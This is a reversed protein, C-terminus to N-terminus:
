YLIDTVKFMFDGGNDVFSDDNLIHVIGSGFQYLDRYGEMSLKIDKNEALMWLYPFCNEGMSDIDVMKDEKYLIMLTKVGGSLYNPPIPGIVPSIVLNESVVESKDIEKIVKRSFDETIVSTDVCADFYKGGPYIADENSGVYVHLM